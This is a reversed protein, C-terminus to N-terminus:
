PDRASQFQDDPPLVSQLLSMPLPSKVELRFDGKVAKAKRQPRKPGRGWGMPVTKPQFAGMREAPPRQISVWASVGGSCSRRPYPPGRFPNKDDVYGIVRTNMPSEGSEFVWYPVNGNPKQIHLNAAGDNLYQTHRHYFPTFLSVARRV